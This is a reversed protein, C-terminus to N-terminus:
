TPLQAADHPDFLRLDPLARFDATNRTVLTLNHVLATAAILADPLKIRHQQRLRITHQVVAEDIGLVETAAIFDELVQVAAAPGVWSLLEIRVIM